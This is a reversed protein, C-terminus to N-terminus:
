SPCGGTASPHATHNSLVATHVPWAEIGLRQLTPVAAANGVYGHAVSSQITLVSTM